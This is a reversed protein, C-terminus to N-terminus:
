KIQKQIFKVIEDKQSTICVIVLKDKPLIVTSGNPIIVNPRRYICSITGTKPFSIDMIKRHAIQYSDKVVMEIMTIKEDEITVAKIIQEISSENVISSTLLATSSIVSDIGLNRFIEVNKPNSVICITKKANFAKKALMCSVFNESDDEGLAIFIDAEEIHANELVFRRSPNGFFVPINNSTALYNAVSRDSNIVLINHKHDKRFSRLVYDAAHKGNAIVIKM